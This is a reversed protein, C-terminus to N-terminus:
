YLARNSGVVEMIKCQCTPSPLSRAILGEWRARWGNVDRTVCRTFMYAMMPLMSLPPKRPSLVCGRLPRRSDTIILCTLSLDSHTLSRYIGLSCLICNDMQRIYVMTFKYSYWNFLQGMFVEICGVQCFVNKEELSGNLGSTNISTNMNFNLYSFVCTSKLNSQSLSDFCCFSQM